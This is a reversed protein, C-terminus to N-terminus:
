KLFIINVISFVIIQLFLIFNIKNLIIDLQDFKILKQYSFFQESSGHSTSLVLGIVWDCNKLVCEKYIM